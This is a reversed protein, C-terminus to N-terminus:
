KKESTQHLLIDLNPLIAASAIMLGGILTALPLTEKFVVYGFITAFVVEVPLIISAIQAELHKFGYIVLGVTIVQTVSYIILWVWSQSNVTSPIADKIFLWGIFSVIVTSFADIFVLQLEPYNKSFKKSLTDWLGVMSGSILCFVAYIVKDKPINLSYILSMGLFALLLAILKVANLKEKYLISGSLYGVIIMVSYLLFYVTGIPLNNFAVFLFIMSSSGIVAWAIIWKLDEKLIPKFKLRLPYLLILVIAM